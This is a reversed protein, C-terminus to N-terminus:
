PVLVIKGTAGPALVAHHAEPADALTLQRGIVPQLFGAALGAEIRAFLRARAEPPTNWVMTGLVTAEKLMTLRPNFDLSGRNGVIVIRGGTALLDFDRVLNVNALMEVIVDVGRGGTFDLVTREYGPAKHDVVFTGHQAVLEAGRESGASGITRAGIARAFQLTALGVGGSAGHVFVTEGAELRARDFLVRAATLYPVGLAAGAIFSINDPLRHVASHDAVTFEAYMGSHRLALGALYVRDGRHFGHVADGVAEVSGAGDAGPTFPLQPLRAYSGSRLYTDVPNVGAAGIRVLVEDPGVSPVPIEELKQVEPPGFEHVRVAKMRSMM